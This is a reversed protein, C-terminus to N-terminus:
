DLPTEYLVMVKNVSEPSIKNRRDYISNGAHSFLQESPVSTAPICFIFKFSYSLIPYTEKNAKWFDIPDIIKPPETTYIAIEKDIGNLKSITKSISSPKDVDFLNFKNKPVAPENEQNSSLLQLNVPATKIIEKLKKSAKSLYNKKQQPSTNSFCKTRPDLFTATAYLDINPEIYKDFYKKTYYKLPFKLCKKFLSDNDDEELQLLLCDFLPVILSITSYNSGSLTKTAEFFNGFVQIIDNLHERENIMIMM